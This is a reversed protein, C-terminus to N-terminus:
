LDVDDFISRTPPQGFFEPAVTETREKHPTQSRKKAAMLQSYYEEERREMEKRQEQEREKEENAQELRRAADDILSLANELVRELEEAEDEYDHFYDLLSNINSQLDYFYDEPTEDPDNYQNALDDIISDLKPVLEEKVLALFLQRERNTIVDRLDDELFTSDATTLLEKRLRAVFSDRDSKSLVGAKHLRAVISSMGYGSAKYSLFLSRWHDPCAVAWKVLFEQSCRRWLFTLYSFRADWEELSLTQLKEIVFDYRSQPVYVTAGAIQIDGCIVERLLEIPRVGRLYIDILDSSKAVHYAIADRVTPHRFSWYREGDETSTKVLSGDLSILADRIQAVTAGLRSVAESEHPQLDMPIRIKGARMFMLALAAFINRDMEEIIESLFEKPECVFRNLSDLALRLNKTFFPDALRRAVEPFFKPNAAIEPLFPKIATKVSHPQSGLRLHNYLIRKKEKLTLQEVQIIVQSDRLLPFATKKLERLASKYIYTRSTFLVRAGKRIAATMRPFQRNWAEALSPEFQTQGFVDDVWFLKKPESPNWHTKFEQPHSILVPLCNWQDAAAVALSAAITSKGAMPDGLLLVFGKEL